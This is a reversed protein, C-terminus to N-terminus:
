CHTQPLPSLLRPKPDVLPLHGMHQIPVSLGYVLFLSSNFTFWGKRTSCDAKSDDPYGLFDSAMFSSYPLGPNITGGVAQYFCYIKEKYFPFMM